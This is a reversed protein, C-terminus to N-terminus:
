RGSGREKEYLQEFFTVQARNPAPGIEARDGLVMPRDSTKDDFAPWNALGKGNPDGNTAFNIWYSSLTDSVQHDLATWARPPLLNQFIYPAEAGHTAGSGFGSRSTSGVPAPPEHSFFYLFVKSRGTKTQVRAWIRM